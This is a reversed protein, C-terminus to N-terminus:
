RHDPGDHSKTHDYATAAAITAVGASTDVRRLGPNGASAVLRDLFQEMGLGNEILVLARRVAALDGPRAQFSHPSVQAPILPTVRACDGAVARTLLTIPLFTTVVEDAPESRVTRDQHSQGCAALVLAVALTAPWLQVLPLFWSRLM